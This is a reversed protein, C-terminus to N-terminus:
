NYFSFLEELSTDIECKKLRDKRKKYMNELILKKADFTAHHVKKHCVPCLSIINAEVDLSKEFLDQFEMPILHHAEVYNERTTKSTFYMHTDDLECKYDASMIAKKPIVNSRSWLQKGGSTTVKIPDSPKDEIDLSDYDLVIREIADQYLDESDKDISFAINKDLLLSMLEPYVSIALNQQSNKFGIFGSWVMTMDSFDLPNFLAISSPIFNYYGKYGGEIPKEYIIKQDLIASAIIHAKYQFLVLTGREANMGTKFNYNRYPLEDRFWEQINEITKGTFEPDRDSMPLIRISHLISYPFSDQLYVPNIRVKEKGYLQKWARNNRTADNALYTFENKLRPNNFVFYDREKQGSFMSTMAYNYSEYKLIGTDQMPILAGIEAITYEKVNGRVRSLLFEFLKDANANGKFKPM